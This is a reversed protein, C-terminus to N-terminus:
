KLEEIYVKSQKYATNWTEQLGMLIGALVDAQYGNSSIGELTVIYSKHIKQNKTM